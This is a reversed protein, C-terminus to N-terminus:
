NKPATYILSVGLFALAPLSFWFNYNNIMLRVLESKDYLTAASTNFITGQLFSNGTSFILVTSLILGASLFGFAFTSVIRFFSTKEILSDIEFGGKISILVIGFIFILTKTMVAADSPSLLGFIRFMSVIPGQALIYNQFLNGLGDAALLSIYSAIILKITKEKGIIFSYAIIVGFFVIIFLDWTLDLRM